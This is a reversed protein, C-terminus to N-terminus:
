RGKAVLVYVPGRRLVREARYVLGRVMAFAASRQRLVEVHRLNSVAEVQFGAREAASRLGGRSFYVTHYNPLLQEGPQLRRQISDALPVFLEQPVEAVLLGDRRLLRHAARMTGVPDTLHELVHNAHIVDLSGAEIPAGDLSTEFIEVGYRQRGHEAAWHSMEVGVASWGQDRAYAVFLGEACGFDLIRGAGLRRTLDSLRKQLYPPVHDSGGAMSSGEAYSEYYDKSYLAALSDATPMPSLQATGCEPCSRIVGGVVPPGVHLSVPRRSLEHGCVVCGPM